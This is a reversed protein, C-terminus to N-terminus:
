LENLFDLLFLVFIQHQDTDNTVDVPLTVDTGIGLDGLMTSIDDLTVPEPQTITQGGHTVPDYTNGTKIAQQYANNFITDMEQLNDTQSTSIQDIVRLVFYVGNMVKKAEEGKILGRMIDNLGSLNIKESLIAFITHDTRYSYIQKFIDKMNMVTFEHINYAEMKKALTAQLRTLKEKTRNYIGSKMQIQRKAMEVSMKGNQALNQIQLLEKEITAKEQVVENIEVNLGDIDYREKIENNFTDINEKFSKMKNMLKDCLLIKDFNSVMYVPLDSEKAIPNKFLSTSQKLEQWQNLQNLAEILHDVTFDNFERKSAKERFDMIQNVINMAFEAAQKSSYDTIKTLGEKLEMLAAKSKTLTAKHTEGTAQNLLVDIGEITTELWKTISTRVDIQNKDKDINAMFLEEIEKIEKKIKEFKKQANKDGLNVLADVLDQVAEVYRKNSFGGNVGTIVIEELKIISEEAFMQIAESSFAIQRFNKLKSNYKIKNADLISTINSTNIVGM